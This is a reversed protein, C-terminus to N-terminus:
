GQEQRKFQKFVKTTPTMSYDYGSQFLYMTPSDGSYRIKFSFWSPKKGTAEIRYVHYYNKSTKYEGLKIAHLRLDTKVATLFADLPIMPSAIIYWCPDIYGTLISEPKNDDSYSIFGDPLKITFESKIYKNGWQVAQEESSGEPPLLVYLLEGLSITNDGKKSTEGTLYDSISKISITYSGDSNKACGTLTFM